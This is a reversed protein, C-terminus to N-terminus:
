WQVVEVMSINSGAQTGDSYQEQNGATFQNAYLELYEGANMSLPSIMSCFPFMASLGNAIESQCRYATATGNFAAWATFRGFNSTTNNYRVVANVIYQGSRRAYIRFNTTDAMRGSNDSIVTNISLKTNTLNPTTTVASPAMNCVLPLTKGAVKFWNSGDCLLIATEKAWMVRTTAGDITESANGDLTVLKTLAADMRFGIYKGTNGSVAPLTVTYDSTTGSCVNLRGIVATATGTISNEGSLAGWAGLFNEIANGFAASAVVSVTAATTVTIASGSSSDEFTGIGLSTGAHTYLCNKRVEWVTVSEDITVDFYKGDDSAGLTKKGSVATGVTIAGLGAGAVATVTFKTKNKHTAV